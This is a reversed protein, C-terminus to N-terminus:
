NKQYIEMRFKPEMEETYMSFRGSWEIIYEGIRKPEDWQIIFSDSINLISPIYVLHEKTKLEINIIDFGGKEDKTTKVNLLDILNEAGMNISIHGNVDFVVVKISTKMQELQKIKEEKAEIVADKSQIRESYLWNIGLLLLFSLVLLASFFTFPAQKIVPWEKQIKDIYNIMFGDGALYDANLSLPFGDRVRHGPAVRDGM